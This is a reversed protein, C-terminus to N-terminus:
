KRKEKEFLYNGYYRYYHNPTTYSYSIENPVIVKIRKSPFFCDSEVWEKKKYHETLPHYFLSDRILKSLDNVNMNRFFSTGISRVRFRNTKNPYNEYNPDDIIMDSLSNDETTFRLTDLENIISFYGLSDRAEGFCLVSNTRNYVSIYAIMDEPLFNISDQDIENVDLYYKELILEISDPDVIIDTTCSFMRLEPLEYPMVERNPVKVLLDKGTKKCQVYFFCENTEDNVRYKEAITDVENYPLETEETFLFVYKNKIKMIKNPYKAGIIPGFYGQISYLNYDGYDHPSKYVAIINEFFHISDICESIANVLAKENKKEQTITCAMLVFIINTFLLKKM